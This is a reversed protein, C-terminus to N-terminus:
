SELKTDRAKLNQNKTDYTAPKARVPPSKFVVIHM